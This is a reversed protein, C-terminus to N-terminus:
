NLYAATAAPINARACSQQNLECCKGFITHQITLPYQLAVRSGLGPGGRLTDRVSRDRHASNLRKMPIRVTSDSTANAQNSVLRFVSDKKAFEFLSVLARGEPKFGLGGLGTSRRHCFAPCWFSRSLVRMKEVHCGCVASGIQFGELAVRTGFLVVDPPAMTGERGAEEMRAEQVSDKLKPETAIAM